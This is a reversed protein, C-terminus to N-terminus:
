LRDLIVLIIIALGLASSLSWGALGFVPLFLLGAVNVLIFLLALVILVFAVIDAYARFFTFWKPEAGFPGSDLRVPSGNLLFDAISMIYKRDYLMGSHGGSVVNEVLHSTDGYKFGDYGGSGITRSGLRHLAKALIGVAWDGYGMDSRVLQVQKRTDIVRDWEFDTPLVSAAFCVRNFSLRPVRRLAEGLIYTGNSHGAYHFEAKPNRALHDAYQDLFWAVFSDRYFPRLFGIISLYGYTPLMVCAEPRRRKIEDALEKFCVKSDRIGHMLIFVHGSGSATVTRTPISQGLFARIYLSRTDPTPVIISAHTAEPVEVPVVDPFQDIDIVDDPDQVADSTGLLHVVTPKPCASNNFRIWDIRLRALFDAGALTSRHMAALRLLKALFLAPRVWVRDKWPMKEIKIGRAIAGMLVIREVKEVWGQRLTEANGYGSANLYARRLVTSGM